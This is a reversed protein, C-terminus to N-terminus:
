IVGCFEALERAESRSLNVENLITYREPRIERARM